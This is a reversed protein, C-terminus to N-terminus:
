NESENVNENEIFVIRGQKHASKENENINEDKNLLAASVKDQSPLVQSPLVATSASV